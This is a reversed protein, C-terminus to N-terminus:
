IRSLILILGKVYKEVSPIKMCFMQPKFQLPYPVGSLDACGNVMIIIIASLMAEYIPASIARDVM